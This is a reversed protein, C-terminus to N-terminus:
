RFFKGNHVHKQWRKKEVILLSNEVKVSFNACSIIINAANEYLIRCPAQAIKTVNIITFFFTKLIKVM